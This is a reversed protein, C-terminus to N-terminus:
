NACLQEPHWRHASGLQLGRSFIYPAESNQTTKHKSSTNAKAELETENTRCKHTRYSCNTIQVFICCQRILARNVHKGGGFVCDTPCYPAERSLGLQITITLLPYVNVSM